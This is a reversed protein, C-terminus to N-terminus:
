PFNPFILLDAHQAVAAQVFRMHDAINHAIGVGAPSRTQAVALNSAPTFAELTVIDIEAIHRYNVAGTSHCGIPASPEDVAQDSSLIEAVPPLDGCLYSLISMSLVYFPALITDPFCFRENYM